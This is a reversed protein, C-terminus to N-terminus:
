AAADDTSLKYFDELRYRVMQFTSMDICATFAKTGPADVFKSMSAQADEARAWHLVVIWGGEASKGTDRDIFGPLKGLFDREMTKTEAIFAEDSVGDALRFTVIEITKAM